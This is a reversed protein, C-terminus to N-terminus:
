KSFFYSYWKKFSNTADNVQQQYIAHNFSNHVQFFFLFLFAVIQVIIYNLVDVELQKLQTQMIEYDFNEFVITRFEIVGKYINMMQWTLVSVFIINVISSINIQQQFLSVLSNVISMMLFVVVIYMFNQSVYKMYDAQIQMQKLSGGFTVSDLSQAVLAKMWFPMVFVGIQVFIQLYTLLLVVIELVIPNYNGM